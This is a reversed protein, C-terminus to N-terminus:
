RRPGPGSRWRDERLWRLVPDNPDAPPMSGWSDGRCRPRPPPLREKAAKVSGGVGGAAYEIDAASSSSRASRSAVEKGTGSTGTKAARRIRPGRALSGIPYLAAIEPARQAAQILRGPSPKQPLAATASLGPRGVRASLRHATTGSAALATTSGPSLPPEPYLLAALPPYRAAFFYVSYAPFFVIVPVSILSFVYLIGGALMSGVVVAITITYLNWSLGAAKGGLVAVVGIGGVPILILLFVIFTAMSMIVAAAIAMVVKMALYGAYGLKERSMMSLLRRWAEFAGLDEIAMQPVVFDKTLVAVVGLSVLFGCVLFFLVIGGLVLALVHDGPARALGHCSRFRGSSRGSHHPWGRECSVALDALRLLAMGCASPSALRAPNPLLKEVVSDFLIFRMVSNLYVFLLALLLGLVVLAGIAAAFLLPNAAAM